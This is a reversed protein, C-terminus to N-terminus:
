KVCFVKDRLSRIMELEVMYGRVLCYGFDKFHMSVVEWPRTRSLNLQYRFDAYRKCLDEEGESLSDILKSGNKAQIQLTTKIREIEDKSTPRHDAQNSNVARRIEDEEFRSIESDTLHSM